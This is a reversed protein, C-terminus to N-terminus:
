FENIVVEYNCYKEEVKNKILEKTENYDLRNNAELLINFMVITREQGHAIRFNLINVKINEEKLISDIRERVKDIKDKNQSVPDIHVTLEVGTQEEVEKELKDISRHGDVINTNDDIEAHVSAITRSPGYDHLELDHIELIFEDETLIDKVKDILEKDPTSGLLLNITDKIVDVGSYMILFSIFIGMLGDIPFTIYLSAIMSIVVLGTALSDSLSDFSAAKNISSNIKKYIYRNYSFMWLKVGITLTLIILSISEFKITEPNILRSVSEFFLSVGVGIIIVAVVMSGIYEYRGHGHPHEEDPPRNSLKASAISIISSGVDTLNNFADSIIAISNTSIGIVIKIVFIFLNAIVGLIGSLEIYKERVSRDTINEYNNITKKILVKIM